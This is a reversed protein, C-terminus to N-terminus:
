KWSNNDYRYMRQGLQVGPEKYCAGIIFRDEQGEDRDDRCIIVM